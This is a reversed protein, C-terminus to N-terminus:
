DFTASQRGQTNAIQHLPGVYILPYSRHGAGGLINASGNSWGCPEAVRRGHRPRCQSRPKGFFM